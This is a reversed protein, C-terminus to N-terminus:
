RRRRFGRTQSPLIRASPALAGGTTTPRSPAVGSSVVARDSRKKPGSCSRSRGSHEDVAALIGSSVGFGMAPAESSAHPDIMNGRAATTGHSAAHAVTGHRAGWALKRKISKKSPRWFVVGLRARLESTVVSALFIAPGRYAQTKSPRPRCRRPTSRRAHWITLRAGAANDLDM